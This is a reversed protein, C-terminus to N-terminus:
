LIRRKRLSADTRICGLLYPHNPNRGCEVGLKLEEEPPNQIGGERMVERVGKGEFKLIDRELKMTLM